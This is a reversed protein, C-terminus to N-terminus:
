LETVTLIRNYTSGTQTITTGDSKWQLTITHTGAALELEWIPHYVFDMQSGCSYKQLSVPSGDVLIQFYANANNIGLPVGGSIRVTRGNSYFQVTMDAINAYSTTSYTLDSTGVVSVSNHVGRGNKKLNGVYAITINLSGAAQNYFWGILEFNTLGTPATASTSFKVTFTTAASDAVAYIYYYTTDAMSGTDLNSSTVTTASTNRRFLRNTQGSNKIAVTGASVSLTSGSAKTVIPAETNCEYELIDVTWSQGKGNAGLFTQTTNIPVYANNVNDAEMYDVGDQLATKNDVTTPFTSSGAM